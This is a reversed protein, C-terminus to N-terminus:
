SRKVGGRATLLIQKGTVRSVILYDGPAFDRLIGVRAMAAELTQESEILLPEEDEVLKFIDFPPIM